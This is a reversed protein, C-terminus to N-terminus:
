ADSWNTQNIKKVLNNVTDATNEAMIHNLKEPVHM